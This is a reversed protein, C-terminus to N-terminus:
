LISLRLFNARFWNEHTIESIDSLHWLTSFSFINMVVSRLTVCLIFRVVSNFNTRSRFWMGKKKDFCDYVESINAKEGLIASFSFIWAILFFLVVCFLHMIIHLSSFCVCVSVSVSVCIRRVYLCNLFRFFFFFVYSASRKFHLIVQEMTSKIRRWVMSWIKAMSTLVTPHSQPQLMQDPQPQHHHRKLSWYLTNRSSTKSPIILVISKKM